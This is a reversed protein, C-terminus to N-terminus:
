KEISNLFNDIAQGELSKVKVGQDKFIGLPTEVIKLVEIDKRGIEKAWELKNIQKFGLEDKIQNQNASSKIEFWDKEINRRIMGSSVYFSHGKYQIEYHIKYLYDLEEMKVKKVFHDKFVRGSMKSVYVEFGEDQSKSHLTIKREGAFQEASYRIGKYIAYM